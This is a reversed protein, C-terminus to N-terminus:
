ETNYTNQATRDLTPSPLVVIEGSELRGSEWLAALLPLQQCDDPLTTGRLEFSFAELNPNPGSLEVVRNGGGAAPAFHLALDIRRAPGDELAPVGYERHLESQLGAGGIPASILLSKVAPCLALASMRMARTVREGRLVVTSEEPCLGASQLAALAIPRALFRCFEGTEVRGLGAAGLISWDEFGKPVLVRKVGKRRLTKAVRKLRWPKWPEPVEAHLFPMDLIREPFFKVRLTRGQPLTLYGIM